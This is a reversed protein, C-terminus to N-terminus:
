VRFGSGHVMFGLIKLGFSWAGYGFGKVKFRLEFVRFRL